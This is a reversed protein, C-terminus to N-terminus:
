GNHVYAPRVYYYGVRPPAWVGGVWYWDYGTWDWYGDVWVYGPGPPYPRYESVPPPPPTNVYVEGYSDPDSYTGSVSTYGTTGGVFCGSLSTGALALAAIKVVRNM